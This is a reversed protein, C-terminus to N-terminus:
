STAPAHMLFRMEATLVTDQHQNIINYRMAVVARGPKSTPRNGVVEAEVHLTDAARVPALTRFDGLGLFGIISDGFVQSVAMLGVAFSFTMPGSAIRTGYPTTRAFEEDTHLPYTDWTLNAFGSIDAETITRRGTLFRAGPPFDAATKHVIVGRETDVTM